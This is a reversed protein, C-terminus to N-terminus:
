ILTTDDVNVWRPDNLRARMEEISLRQRAPQADRNPDVPTILTPTPHPPKFHAKHFLFAAGRLENVVSALLQDTM